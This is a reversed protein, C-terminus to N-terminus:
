TISIKKRFIQPNYKISVSATLEIIENIIFDIFKKVQNKTEPPSYENILDYLESRSELDLMKNNDNMRIIIESLLINFDLNNKFEFNFCKGTRFDEFIIGTNEIKSFPCKSNSNISHIKNFSDKENMLVGGHDRGILESFEKFIRISEDNIKKIDEKNKETEVVRIYTISKLNPLEELNEETIFMNGGGGSPIEELEFGDSYTPEVLLIICILFFSIAKM